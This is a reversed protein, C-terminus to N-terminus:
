LVCVCVSKKKPPSLFCLSPERERMKKQELRGWVCVYVREYRIYEREEYFEFWVRMIIIIIILKKKNDM